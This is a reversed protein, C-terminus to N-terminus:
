STGKTASPVEREMEENSENNENHAKYKVVHKVTKHYLPHHKLTEISVIATKDMKASIVMGIRSKRKNEM